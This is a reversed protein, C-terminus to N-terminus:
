IINDLIEELGSVNRTKILLAIDLCDKPINFIEKIDDIIFILQELTDLRINKNKIILLIRKYWELTKNTIKFM